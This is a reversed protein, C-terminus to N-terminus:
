STVAAKELKRMRKEHDNIPDKIEYIEQHVKELENKIEDHQRDFRDFNPEIMKEYFDTLANIMGEQTEKQIESLDKKTLM